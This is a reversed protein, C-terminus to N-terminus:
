LYKSTEILQVNKLTASCESIFLNFDNRFVKNPIFKQNRKSFILFKREM